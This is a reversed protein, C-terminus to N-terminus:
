SRRGAGPHAESIPTLSGPRGASLSTRAPEVHSPERGEHAGAVLLERLAVPLAAELAATAETSLEEALVRCVSAAIERRRGDLRTARGEGQRVATALSGPLEDAVLERQSPGLCSGIWGLVELTIPRLEASPGAHGEIHDLLHAEDPKM